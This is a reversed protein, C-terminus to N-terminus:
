VKKLIFFAVALNVFMFILGLVFNYPIILAFALFVAYLVTFISMWAVGFSMIFLVAWICILAFGIMDISVSSGSVTSATSEVTIFNNTDCVTNIIGISESMLSTMGKPTSIDVRYREGVLSTVKYNKKTLDKIAFDAWFDGCTFHAPFLTKDMVNLKDNICEIEYSLSTVDKKDLKTNPEFHYRDISKSIVISDKDKNDLYTLKLGVDGYYFVISNNEQTYPIDKIVNKTHSDSACATCTNAGLVTLNATNGQYDYVSANPYLYGTNLVAINYKNYCTINVRYLNVDSFIAEVYLKDYKSVEDTGSDTPSVWLITPSVSDTVNFWGRAIVQGYYSNCALSVNYIGNETIQSKNLSLSEGNSVILTGNAFTLNMVTISLLGGSCDGTIVYNSGSEWKSGNVFPYVTGDIEYDLIFSQPNIGSVTYFNTTNYTWLSSNCYVSIASTGTNTFFHTGYDSDEYLKSTANPYIVEAHTSYQRNLIATTNRGFSIIRVSNTPNCGASCILDLRKNMSFSTNSLTNEDHYGINCQPIDASVITKQFSGNVYVSVIPNGANKCLRFNFTDNLVNTNLYTVFTATYNTNYFTANNDYYPTQEWINTSNYSCNLTSNFAGNYTVNASIRFLDFANFNSGYLNGSLNTLIISSINIPNLIVVTETKNYARFPAGDYAAIYVNYPISPNATQNSWRKRQGITTDYYWNISSANTQNVYDSEFTFGYIQGSKIQSSVNFTFNVWGAVTSINNTSIYDSCTLKNTVYDTSMNYICAKIGRNGVSGSRALWYEIRWLNYTSNATFSSLIGAYANNPCASGCGVMNMSSTYSGSAVSDRLYYTDDAYTVSALLSVLALIGFIIYSLKSM